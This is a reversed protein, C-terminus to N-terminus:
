RSGGGNSLSPESPRGGPDLFRDFRGVLEAVSEAITEQAERTMRTEDLLQRFVETQERIAQATDGAEGLPREPAQSGFIRELADLRQPGPPRDSNGEWVRITQETVEIGMLSLRERLAAVTMGLRKRERQIGTATAPKPTYARGMHPSITVGDRLM